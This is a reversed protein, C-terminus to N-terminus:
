TVVLQQSVTTTNNQNSAPKHNAEAGLGVVAINSAATGVIVQLRVYKDGANQNQVAEETTEFTIVQNANSTTLNVTGGTLNHVGSAFTSSASSQLIANVTSSAGMAGVELVYLVRRNKSLDIGSSNVTSAATNSPQIQDLQGLAQTLTETYM